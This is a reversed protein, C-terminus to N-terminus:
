ACGRCPHHRARSRAAPLRQARQCHAAEPGFWPSCSQTVGHIVGPVVPISRTMAACATGPILPAALAPPVHPRSGVTRPEGAPAAGVFHHPSPTESDTPALGARLTITGPAGDFAEAANSVFHAFMQQLRAADATVRPLSEPVHMEFRVSSPVASRAWLEWERLMASVDAEEAVISPRGAFDLLQRTLDAARTASHVIEAIWAQAPSGAPLDGAALGANGLVAQMLNNFDHAVGGALVGISEMHRAELLEAELDRTHQERKRVETLETAIGCLISLGGNADRLPFKKVLFVRPGEFTTLTVEYEYRTGTSVAIANTRLIEHVQEAPLFESAHRGVVPIRGPNFLRNWEENVFLYHGDVTHLFAPAVLNDLLLQMRDQAERMETVDTIAGIFAVM